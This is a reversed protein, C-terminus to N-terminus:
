VDCGRSDYGEFMRSHPYSSKLPHGPNPHVGLGDIASDISVLRRHYDRCRQPERLAASLPFPEFYM